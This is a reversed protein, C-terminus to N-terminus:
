TRIVLDFEQPLEELLMELTKKSNIVDKLGDNNIDKLGDGVAVCGRLQSVFNASHILIYSRNKVDHIEFHLGHKASIRRTVKYTGEPICSINHQNDKWPLELTHCMFKNDYILRGLTQKDGYERIIEVM